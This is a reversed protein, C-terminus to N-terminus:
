FPRFQTPRGHCRKYKQHSGCPCRENRAIVVPLTKLTRFNPCGFRWEVNRRIDQPLSIAGDLFSYSYELSQGSVRVGICLVQVRRGYQEFWEEARVATLMALDATWALRDPANQQYDCVYVLLQDAVITLGSSRHGTTRMEERRNWIWRGVVAQVSTPASDLFDLIRRYDHIEMGPLLENEGWTKELLERYTEVAMPNDVAMFSIRSYYNPGRLPNALDSEMISAFRESESGLPVANLEGRMVAKIYRLLEHVSRLHRNLHFWDQHSIVFADEYVPLDIAPSKPHDVVVIIPWDSCDENLVIRFPERDKPGFVMSRLPVATLPDQRDVHLMITRKSGRGQQVAKALHKAVWRQAREPSDRMGEKRSRSKVQLIAGGGGCLLIGDGVERVAAGKHVVPQIYVFEPVGLVAVIERVRSEVLHGAALNM